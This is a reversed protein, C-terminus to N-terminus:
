RQVQFQPSVAVLYFATRARKLPNNAAVAQIATLIHGRMPASMAGHMMERNLTDVLAAGSLDTEALSQLRALNISTGCPADAVRPIGGEFVLKNIYNARKLANGTSFIDFEPAFLNTNPLLNEMSYYNFVSPAVFVDQSLQNTETNLVGDSLGGCSGIGTPQAVPNFSRLTNTVYLVPERLKGYDPDTKVNGRAEPDLLIARIVAKM